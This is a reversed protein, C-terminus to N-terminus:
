ILDVHTTTTKDKLTWCVASPHCNPCIVIRKNNDSNYNGKSFRTVLAIATVTSLRRRNTTSVVWITVVVIITHLYIIRIRTAIITTTRRRRWSSKSSNSNTTKKSTITSGQLHHHVTTATTWRTHERHHEVVAVMSWKTMARHHKSHYPQPLPLLPLLPLEISQSSIITNNNNNNFMLTPWLQTHSRRWERSHFTILWSKEVAM